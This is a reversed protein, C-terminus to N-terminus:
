ANNFGVRDYVEALRLECGITPLAMSAEPGAAASFLWVEDDGRVFQEIRPTTQSILM